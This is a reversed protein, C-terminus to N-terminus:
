CGGIKEGCVSCYGEEDERWGAVTLVEIKSTKGCTPCVTDYTSTWIEEGLSKGAMRGINAALDDVSFWGLEFTNLGDSFVTVPGDASVTVILSDSYDYSARLASTHRTGPLPRLFREADQTPILQVGTALLRGDRSIITAGDHQALLHAAFAVTPEEIKPSISLRLPRLDIGTGDFPNRDSLLWVLTAGIRWPSLVYHAIELLQFLRETDVMPAAQRIRGIAQNLSPSVSWRRGAHQLSGFPTYLPGYLRVIGKRDRLISVGNLDRALRAM